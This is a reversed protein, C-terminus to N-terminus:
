DIQDCHTNMDNYISYIHNFPNISNENIHKGIIQVIHQNQIKSIFAVNLILMAYRYYYKITLYVYIRLSQYAISIGLLLM